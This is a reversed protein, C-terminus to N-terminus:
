AGSGYGYGYGYGQRDYRIDNLVVYMSKFMKSRYIEELDPLQRKDTRGARIVFLTLDAHVGVIKADAVMGCPVNDLIVYDYRGRMEEVLKGFRESMLMESPNPPIPGAYIVDLNDTGYKPVIIDDVSDVRGSLYTTLGNQRKSMGLHKSLTGKRIDTDVLLVKKGTHSLTLATNVAVFSKGAGPNFSTLMIVKKTKDITFGLNTRMIRFAESLQDRGHVEVEKYAEDTEEKHKGAWRKIKGVINWASVRDAAQQPIEGLVPASVQKEVDRKSNVKTDLLMRVYIFLSPIVVGLLFAAILVIISKPSVPKVPGRASDLVRLNSQAVAQNLATEERKNLLFLYLEEKIKQQREVAMIYKQQQPLQSIKKETGSERGRVTELQIKVGAIYNDLTTLIAQKLSTITITLDSIIPNNEGGASIYKDRKLKSENYLSIREEVANDDIGTNAPILKDENQPDTLYDRMFNAVSLQNELSLADKKYWTSEQIFMGSESKIDTLKNSSKFSAIDTDVDGLEDTIYQLRENIFKATNISVKNKDNVAEENYSWILSNLLDEARKASVDDVSLKIISSTKGQRSSSLKKCYYDVVSNMSGKTVTIVGGSYDNFAATPKVVVAGVPTIVTDNLTVTVPSDTLKDRNLQYDDIIVKDGDKRLKFKIYSNEGADPFSIEVPSKGYLDVPTLGKTTKYTIDLHLRNVVNQMLKATKFILVENEVNNGSMNFLNMEGLIASESMSGRGREDKVMVTAYRTYTKPTSKLYLFACVICVALSTVFWWKNVWVIQFIDGLEIDQDGAETYQVNNEQEM